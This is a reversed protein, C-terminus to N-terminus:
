DRHGSGAKGAMKLAETGWGSFWLLLNRLRFRYFSNGVSIVGHRRLKNTIISSSGDFKVFHRKTGNHGALDIKVKAPKVVPKDGEQRSNTQEEQSSMSKMKVRNHCRRLWIVSIHLGPRM